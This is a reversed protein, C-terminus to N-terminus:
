HRVLSFIIITCTRPATVLHNGNLKLYGMDISTYLFILSVGM